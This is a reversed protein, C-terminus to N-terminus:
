KKIFAKGNFTLGAANDKGIDITVSSITIIRQFNAMASSFGLISQLDGHATISFNFSAPTMDVQEPLISFSNTHAVDIQVNNEAALADVQAIFLPGQPTAPFAANVLPLDNQLEQYKEGLTRLNSTKDILQQNVFKADELEKRLSVITVLTPNIAFFGFVIIALLTFSLTAFKQTRKEKLYPFIKELYAQKSFRELINKKNPKM